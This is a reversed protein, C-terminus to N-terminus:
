QAAKWSKLFLPEWKEPIVLERDAEEGPMDIHEGGPGLTVLRMEIKRAVDGQPFEVTFCPETYTVGDIVADWTDVHGCSTCEFIVVAVHRQDDIQMSHSITGTPPGPPPLPHEAMFEDHWQGGSIWTGNKCKWGEHCTDPVQEWYGALENKAIQDPHYLGHPDDESIQMIEDDVIKAWIKGHSM